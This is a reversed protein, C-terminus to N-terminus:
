CELHHRCLLKMWCFSWQCVMWDLLVVLHGLSQRFPTYKRLHHYIECWTYPRPCLNGHRCSVPPSRRFLSRVSIRRLQICKTSCWLKAKSCQFLWSVMLWFKNIQSMMMVKFCKLSDHGWNFRHFRPTCWLTFAM